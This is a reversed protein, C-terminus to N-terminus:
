LQLAASGSKWETKRRAKTLMQIANKEKGEDGGERFSLFKGHFWEFCYAWGSGVLQPILKVTEGHMKM